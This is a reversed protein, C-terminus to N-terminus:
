SLNREASLKVEVVRRSVRLDTLSAKEKQPSPYVQFDKIELM